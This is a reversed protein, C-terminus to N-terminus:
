LLITDHRMAKPRETVAMRLFPLSLYETNFM